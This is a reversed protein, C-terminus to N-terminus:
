DKHNFLHTTIGRIDEKLDDYVDMMEIRQQESRKHEDAAHKDLACLMENKCNEVTEQTAFIRHLGWWTLGGVSGILYLMYQPNNLIVKFIDHVTTIEQHSM